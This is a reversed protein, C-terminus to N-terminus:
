IKNLGKLQALGLQLVARVFARSGLFYLTLNDHFKLENFKDLKDM